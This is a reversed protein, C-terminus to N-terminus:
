YGYKVTTFVTAVPTRGKGIQDGIFYIKRSMLLGSSCKFYMLSKNAM